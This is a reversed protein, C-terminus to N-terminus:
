EHQDLEEEGSDSPSVIGHESTSEISPLTKESEAESADDGDRVECELIFVGHSDGLLAGLAYGLVKDGNKPLSESKLLRQHLSVGISCCGQNGYEEGVAATKHACGFRECVMRIVKPNAQHFVVHDFSDMSYGHNKYMWGLWERLSSPIEKPGYPNLVFFESPEDYGPVVESQRSAIFVDPDCRIDADILRYTRDPLNETSTSLICAFAADGFVLTNLWRLINNDKTYAEVNKKDFHKSVCNSCVIAINNIEQSALLNKGLKLASVLVPCGVPMHIPILKKSLTPYKEFWIRMGEYFHVDDSTCSAHILVDIEHPAVRANQIAEDFARFAMGMEDINEEEEASKEPVKNEFDTGAIIARAARTSGFAVSKMHLYREAWDDALPKNKAPNHIGCQERLYQCIWRTQVRFGPCGDVSPVASGLGRIRPVGGSVQEQAERMRRQVRANRWQLLKMGLMWIAAAAISVKLVAPVADTMSAFPGYMFFAISFLVPPVVVYVGYTLVYKTIFGEHQQGNVKPMKYSKLLNKCSALEPPLESYESM